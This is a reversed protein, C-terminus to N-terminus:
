VAKVRLRSGGVVGLVEVRAGADLSAGPEADAAWEKGDVFVRGYTDTFPTVARGERGVLRAAADNIVDGMAPRARPLFRRAAMTSGIALVAFLVLQGGWGGLTVGFGALVAVVGASASAWLLYGSGTAVEAALIGAAAALWLWLPSAFMSWNM